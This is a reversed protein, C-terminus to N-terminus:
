VDDELCWSDTKGQRQKLRVLASTRKQGYLMTCLLVVLPFVLKLLYLSIGKKLSFLRLQFPGRLAQKSHHVVGLSACM